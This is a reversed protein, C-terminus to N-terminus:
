ARCAARRRAGPRAPPRERPGPVRGGTLPTGYRSRARAASSSSGSREAATSAATRRPRYTRPLSTAANSDSHAAKQPAARATPTAFPVSAIVSASRARPTPAPSSTRVTEIVHAGVAVPMRRAPAVGTKTSTSSSRRVISTEAAERRRSAASSPSGARAGRRGRRPRRRWRRRRRPARAGGRRPSRAPERRSTAPVAPPCTRGRRRTSSRGSSSGRLGRPRLPRSRPRRPRRPRRRARRGAARTRTRWACRRRALRAEVAAEVLDLGGRQAHAQPLQGGPVPPARLDGRPVVRREGADHADRRRGARAFRGGVVEVDHPDRVAVGEARAELLAPDAGVDVVRAGHVLLGRERASGRPGSPTVSRAIRSTTESGSWGSRVSASASRTISATRADARQPASSGRRSSGRSAPRM